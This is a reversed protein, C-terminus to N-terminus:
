VVSKRDVNNEIVTGDLNLVSSYSVEIGGGNYQAFNSSIVGGEINVYVNSVIFLGAGYSATNDSIFTDEIYSNGDEAVFLGGGEGTAVNNSVISNRITLNSGQTCIGGGSGAINETISVDILIPSGELYAGGGCVNASNDTLTINDLNPNSYISYIGGGNSASCNSITVNRITTNSSIISVGGGSEEAFGRIISLSELFGDNSNEYILIRSGNEGDLITSDEGVGIIYIGYPPYIPFSEGTNTSSFEGNSLFITSQTDGDLNVYLKSLAHLITQFPSEWSLGDNINDDGQPSVFVEGVIANEAGGGNAADVGSNIAKIWYEPSGEFEPSYVDFYGETLDTTTNDYGLIYVSRFLM